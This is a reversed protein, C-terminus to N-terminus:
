NKEIGRFTITEATSKRNYKSKPSAALLIACPTISGPNCIDGALKELDSEPVAALHIHM